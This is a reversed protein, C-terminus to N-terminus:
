LIIQTVFIRPIELRREFPSDSSIFVHTQLSKNFGSFSKDLSDMSIADKGFYENSFVINKMELARNYSEESIHVTLNDSIIM